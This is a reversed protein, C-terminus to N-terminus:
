IALHVLQMGVFWWCNEWYSFHLVCFYPVKYVGVECSVKQVLVYISMYFLVKFYPKIFGLNVLHCKQNLMKSFIPQDKPMDLHATWLHTKVISACSKVFLANDFYIDPEIPFLYFPILYNPEPKPQALKIHQNMKGFCARPCGCPPDNIKVRSHGITWSITNWFLCISWCITTMYSLYANYKATKCSRPTQKTREFENWWATQARVPPQDHVLLHNTM